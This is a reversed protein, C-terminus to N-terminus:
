VFYATPPGDLHAEHVFQFLNNVGVVILIVIVFLLLQVRGGLGRLLREALLAALLALGLLAAVLHDVDVGGGLELNHEDLGLAKLVGRLNSVM